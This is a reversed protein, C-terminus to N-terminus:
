ISTLYRTLIVSVQIIWWHGNSHWNSGDWQSTWCLWTKFYFSYLLDIIFCYWNCDLSLRSARSICRRLLAFLSNNISFYKRNARVEGYSNNTNSETFSHRTSFFGLILWKTAPHKTYGAYYCRWASHFLSVVIAEFQFTILSSSAPLRPAHQSFTVKM